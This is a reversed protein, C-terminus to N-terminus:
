EVLRCTDISLEFNPMSRTTLAGGPETVAVAVTKALAGSSVTYNATGGGTPCALQFQVKFVGCSDTCWEETPTLIGEYGVETEGETNTVVGEITTDFANGSTIVNMSVGAVPLSSEADGGNVGGKGDYDIEGADRRVVKFQQTLAATSGGACTVAETPTGLEKIELNGSGDAITAGSCDLSCIGPVDDVAAGCSTLVLVFIIKFMNEFM